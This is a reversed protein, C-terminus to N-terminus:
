EKSIIFTNGTGDCFFFFLIDKKRVYIKVEDGQTLQIEKDPIEITKRM